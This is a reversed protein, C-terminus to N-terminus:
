ASAYFRGRLSIEMQLFVLHPFTWGALTLFWVTAHGSFLLLFSSYVAGELLGFWHLPINEAEKLPIQLEKRDIPSVLTMATPSPFRSLCFFLLGTLPKGSSENGPQTKNPMMGRARRESETQREGNAEKLETERCEVREQLLQCIIVTM